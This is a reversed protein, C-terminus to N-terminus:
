NADSIQRCTYLMHAIANEFCPTKWYLYRECPTPHYPEKVVLVLSVNNVHHLHQFAHIQELTPLAFLNPFCEYGVLTRRIPLGVFEKRITHRLAETLFSGSSSKEISCNNTLIYAGMSTLNNVVEKHNLLETLEVM